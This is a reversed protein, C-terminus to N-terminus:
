HKASHVVGFTLPVIFNLFPLFVLGPMKKRMFGAIAVTVPYSAVSWFFVYADVTYGADFAMASLPIFPICPILLIVWLWFLATVIPNQKKEM